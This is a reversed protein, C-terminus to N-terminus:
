PQKQKRHFESVVTKFSEAYEEFTFKHKVMYAIDSILLVPVTDSVQEAIKATESGLALLVQPKLIELELELFGLKKVAEITPQMDPYKVLHTYWVKQHIGAKILAKRLFDADAFSRNVSSEQALGGVVFYEPQMNGTPLLAKEDTERIKWLRRLTTECLAAYYYFAAEDEQKEVFQIRFPLSTLMLYRQIQINERVSDDSFSSVWYQKSLREEESFLATRNSWNSQAAYSVLKEQIEQIREEDLPDITM